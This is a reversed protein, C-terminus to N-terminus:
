FFFISVASGAINGQPAVFPRRQVKLTSVHNFLCILGFRLTLPCMEQIFSPVGHNDYPKELM